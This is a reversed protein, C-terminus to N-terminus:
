FRDGGEFFSAAAGSVPSGRDAELARKVVPDSLARLEAASVVHDAARNMLRVTAMADALREPMTGARAALQGMPEELDEETLSAAYEVLREFPISV